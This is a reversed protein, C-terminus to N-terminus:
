DHLARGDDADFLHCQAMQLYVTHETGRPAEVLLGAEEAAVRATVPVGGLQV